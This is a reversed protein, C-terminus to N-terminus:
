PLSSLRIVSGHRGGLEIILGRNFCEAQIRRALERDGVRRGIRDTEANSVIEIGIMLGNVRVEGIFSHRAQMDHLQESFRSAMAAAHSPVDHQLLYHLTALGTAMALQNGRFTGSHAGPQWLDLDRHYVIVALPLGGGIAKSLVLVDPVVNAHEFAYM